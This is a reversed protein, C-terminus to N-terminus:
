SPAQVVVARALLSEIAPRDMGAETLVEVSHQGLAPPARDLAVELDDFGWFAGIQELAGWEAQPYSAVLDLSRAGSSTPGSSAASQHQDPM